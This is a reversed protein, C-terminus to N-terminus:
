MANWDSSSRQLFYKFESLVKILIPGTVPFRDEMDPFVVFFLRMRMNVNMFSQLSERRLKLVTNKRFKTTAKNNHELYTKQKRGFNESQM